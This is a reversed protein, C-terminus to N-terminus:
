VRTARELDRQYIREILCRMKRSGVPNQSHVVIEKPLIFEKNHYHYEELWKLFTYGTGIDDNGLDHDLSILDIKGANKLVLDKVEDPWYCRVFGDPTNRNDDLYIKM